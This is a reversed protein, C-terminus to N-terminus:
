QNTTGYLMCLPLEFYLKMKFSAPYNLRGFLTPLSIIKAGNIKKKNNNKKWEEEVENEKGGFNQGSSNEIVM